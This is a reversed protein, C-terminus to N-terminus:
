LSELGWRYWTTFLGRGPALSKIFCHLFYSAFGLWILGQQMTYWFVASFEFLLQKKKKLFSEIIIGIFGLVIIRFLFLFYLQLWKRDVQHLASGPVWEPETWRHRHGSQTVYSGHLCSCHYHFFFTQIYEHLFLFSWPVINIKQDDRHGYLQWISKPNLAQFHTGLFDMSMLGLSSLKQFSCSLFSPKTVTLFLLTSFGWSM